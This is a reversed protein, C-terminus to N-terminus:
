PLFHVNYFLKPLLLLRLKGANFRIDIIYIGFAVIKLMQKRLELSFQVSSLEFLEFFGILPLVPRNVENSTIMIESAETPLALPELAFEHMLSELSISYKEQMFNKRERM